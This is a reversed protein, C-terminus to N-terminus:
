ADGRVLALLAHHHVIVYKTERFTLEIADKRLYFAFDGEEAQLPLYRVRSRDEAWFEGESFEPNATLYGPGVAAVRGSGVRDADAVSAPLYLGSRTQKDGSDPEILVRDGILLAFGHLCCFPDPAPPVPRIGFGGPM